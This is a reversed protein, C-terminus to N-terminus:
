PARVETPQPQMSHTSVPTSHKSNAQELIIAILPASLRYPAENLAMLITNTQTVSLTLSVLPENTM